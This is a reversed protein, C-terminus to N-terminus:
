TTGWIQNHEVPRVWLSQRLQKICSLLMIDQNPASESGSQTGTFGLQNVESLNGLRETEELIVTLNFTELIIDPVYHIHHTNILHLAFGRSWKAWSLGMLEESRKSAWLPQWGSLYRQWFVIKQYTVIKKWAWVIGTQPRTSHWMCHSLFLLIICVKDELLKFNIVCYGRQGTAHQSDETFPFWIQAHPITYASLPGHSAVPQSKGPLLWCKLRGLALPLVFLYSRPLTVSWQDSSFLPSLYSAEPHM